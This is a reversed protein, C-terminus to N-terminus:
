FRSDGSRMIPVGFLFWVGSQDTVGMTTNNGGNNRSIVNSADRIEFHQLPLTLAVV